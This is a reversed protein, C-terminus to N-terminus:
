DFLLTPRGVRLEFRQCQPCKYRGDTLTREWAMLVDDTGDGAYTRADQLEIVNESGCKGCALPSKRTNANTIAKCNLCTVPWSSYEEFGAMTGGITIGAKYGCAGCRVTASKGM